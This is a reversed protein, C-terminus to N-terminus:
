NTILPFILAVALGSVSFLTISKFLAGAFLIAFIYSIILEWSFSLKRKRVDVGAIARPVMIMHIEM